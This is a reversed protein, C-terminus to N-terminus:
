GKRPEHARLATEVSRPLINFLLGVFAALLGAGGLFLSALLWGLAPEGTAAQREVAWLGTAFGLISLAIGPVAIALLPHRVGVQFLLDDLVNSAHTIPGLTSGDVDYRCHIRTEGIRLGARHADVLM